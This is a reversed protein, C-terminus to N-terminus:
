WLSHTHCKQENAFFQPSAAQGQKQSSALVTPAIQQASTYDCEEERAEISIRPLMTM